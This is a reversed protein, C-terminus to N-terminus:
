GICTANKIIAFSKLGTALNEADFAYNKSSDGYVLNGESFVLDEDLIGDFLEQFKVRNYTEEFLNIQEENVNLRSLLVDKHSYRESKRRFRDFNIDDLIFPNDIYIVGSENKHEIKLGKESVKNEVFSIESSIGDSFIKVFSDESGAFISSIKRGFESDFIRQLSRQKISIHKADIQLMELLNEVLQIARSYLDDGLVGKKIM